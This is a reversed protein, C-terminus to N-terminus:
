KEAAARHIHDAIAENVIAAHSIPGMHGVGPFFRLTSHPLAEGLREVVRREASPSEGGGLLLTPVAITAFTEFTTRDAILSRAEQFVKWGMSRFASRTDEGMREWAGEGNWWEVFGRLWQEDAGSEDRNWRDPVLDLAKRAMADAADGDDLIGFAVPDYIALSRVLEPRRIAIQLALLGGYSHGVLHAASGGDLMSELYALDQRFHFPEGDPWREAGYGLLDPALVNFDSSLMAALKRWQRSTFGGSHILLVTQQM